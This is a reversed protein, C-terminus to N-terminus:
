RNRTHHGLWYSLPKLINFQIVESFWLLFSVQLNNQAYSFVIYYNTPYPCAIWVWFFRKTKTLKDVKLLTALICIYCFWYHNEHQSKEQPNRTTAKVSYTMTIENINSLMTLSPQGRELSSSLLTRYWSKWFLLKGTMRNVWRKRVHVRM